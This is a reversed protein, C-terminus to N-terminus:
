LSWVREEGSVLDEIVLQPYHGTITARCELILHTAPMDNDAEVNVIQDGELRIMDGKTLRPTRKLTTKVSKELWVAPCEYLTVTAVIEAELADSYSSDYIRGDKSIKTSM